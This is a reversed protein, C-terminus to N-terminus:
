EAEVFVSDACDKEPSERCRDSREAPWVGVVAKLGDRRFRLQTGGIFTEASVPEWGATRAADEVAKAREERSRPPPLFYIHVCSPSPALEVCDAEVEAVVDSEPPVLSRAAARLEDASPGVCGSFLALAGCALLLRAFV